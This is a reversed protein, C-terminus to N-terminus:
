HNVQLITVRMLSQLIYMLFQLGIHTTADSLDDPNTLLNAFCVFIHSYTADDPLARVVYMDSSVSMHEKVIYPGQGYNKGFLSINPEGFLRYYQDQSSLRKVVNDPGQESLIPVFGITGPTSELYTSLDIINTYVGPSIMQAM